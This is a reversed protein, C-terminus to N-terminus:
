RVPQFSFILISPPTSWANRLNCKHRNQCKCEFRQVLCSVKSVFMAPAPDKGNLTSCYRKALIGLHRDVIGWRVRNQAVLPSSLLWRSGWLIPDELQPLPIGAHRLRECLLFNIQNHFTKLAPCVGLHTMDDPEARSCLLCPPRVGAVKPPCSWRLSNLVFSSWVKPDNGLLALSKIQKHTTHFSPFLNLTLSQSKLSSRAAFRLSKLVRGVDKKVGGMLIKGKLSLYVGGADLTPPYAALPPGRTRAEKALLDASDNGRSLLDDLGTHSHVHRVKCNPKRSLFLNMRDVWGRCPTRARERDSRKYSFICDVVAKSDTVIEVACFPAILAAVTVGVIEAFFNNGYSVLSFGLSHIVQGQGDWVVVGVGSLPEGPVSSGDTFIQLPPIAHALFSRAEQVLRDFLDSESPPCILLCDHSRFFEIVKAFRSINYRKSLHINYLSLNHSQNVGTLTGLRVRTTLGATTTWANLDYALSLLKNGWYREQLLPTDVLDSFAELSLSRVRDGPWGDAVFITRLISRSWSKLFFDPITAFTLGLDLKPLLIVKFTEFVKVASIGSKQVIGLWEALCAKMVSIQKEWGLEINLFLGLYKFTTNPPKPRIPDSGPCRLWRNDNPIADSIVYVTKNSNIEGSHAEFFALVWEHSTFVSSWSEAFTMLDDAFGLSAVRVQSRFFTYGLPCEDWGLPPHRFGEHLADSFLVYILPELPNGQQLGNLIAFSNTLGFYTRFSARLNDHISLVLSIWREPLSFRDLSARISYRQISDYAKKQDYSVLFFQSSSDYLRKQKADEIVNLLTTICQHTCGNRLFARQAPDVIDHELLLSSLRNAMIKCFLKAYENMISIPRLDRDLTEFCAEGKKKEIMVIYFEKWALPFDGLDLIRNMLECLPSLLPSDSFFLAKMLNSSTGQIDVATDASLSSITKSLEQLTIPAMLPDWIKPDIGKAGRRYFDDWWKPKIRTSSDPFSPSPLPRFAPDPVIFDCERDDQVKGDVLLVPRSLSPSLKELYAAKVDDARSLVKSDGYRLASPPGRVTDKLGILQLWKSRSKIDRFLKDERQLFISNLPPGARRLRLRSITVSLFSELWSFIDPLSSVSGPIVGHYHLRSLYHRVTGEWRPSLDSTPQDCLMRAARALHRLYSTLCQTEDPPASRRSFGGMWGFTDGSASLVLSSFNEMESLNWERHSASWKSFINSALEYCIENRPLRPRPPLWPVQLQYPVFLPFELTIALHDSSSDKPHSVCMSADELLFRPDTLFYDLRADGGDKSCRGGPRRTWGPSLPFLTRWVDVAGHTAMFSDVFKIRPTNPFYQRASTPTLKRDIPARTENFDGGVVWGLSSPLSLVWNSLDAYTASAEEKALGKASTDKRARFRCGILDLGPPLYVSSIAILFEGAGVTLGLFSGLSNSCRNLIVWGPALIIATSRSPNSPSSNLLISVKPFLAMLRTIDRIVAAGVDQCLVVDFSRNPSLM